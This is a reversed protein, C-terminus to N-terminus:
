LTMLGWATQSWLWTRLWRKGGGAWHSAPHLGSSLSAIWGKVRCGQPEEASVAACRQHGRQEPATNSSKSTPSVIHSFM